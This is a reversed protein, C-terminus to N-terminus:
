PSRKIEGTGEPGSGIIAGIVGGQGFALRETDNSALKVETICDFITAQSQVYAWIDGVFLEAAGVIMLEEAFGDPVGAM